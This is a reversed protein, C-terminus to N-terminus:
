GWQHPYMLSSIVEDLKQLNVEWRFNKTVFAKANATIKQRLGKDCLLTVTAEAFALPNEAIMMERRHQAGIGQNAVPTAVVPVDMAMAELVKNQIGKAIRLPVVCVSAQALYSRMDPVFGTVIVDQSALQKIQKTPNMGAIIFKVHDDVKDKILPLINDHFYLVADVNPFYRMVGSFILSKEDSQIADYSSDFDIGNPMVTINDVYPLLRKENESVVTCHDFLKSITYEYKKLKLYELIYIVSKPFRVKEAYLLWKDYDVDVFDIIKPQSMNMVYQAMSSCDVLILDCPTKDVLSKLGRSYFHWLTSPTTTLLGFVARLKSLFPYLHVTQVSACYKELERAQNQEAISFSPYILHVTYNQSLHRLIHFNRIRDGSHPPYPCSHTLYLIRISRDHHSPRL